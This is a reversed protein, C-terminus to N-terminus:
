FINKIKLFAIVALFLLLGAIIWGRTTSTKKHENRSETVVAVSRNLSDITNKYVQERAVYSSPIRYTPTEVKITDPTPKKYNANLTWIKSSLTKVQERYGSVINACDQSVQAALVSDNRLKDLLRESERAMSDIEGTYDSNEGPVYVVVSEGVSDIPQFLESCERAFQEPHNRYYKEANRQTACSAVLLFLAVFLGNFKNKM